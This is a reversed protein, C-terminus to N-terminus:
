AMSIYQTAEKLSSIQRYPPHFERSFLLLTGVGAKEGAQMDRLKDGIMLSRQMDIGHNKQARLLMGANPKRDDCEKKYAGSGEPHHPCHYIADLPAGEKEFRAKMWEMLAEFDQATYYGRGIGSQNTVVILLYNAARAVRCVDFIGEMFIIDHPRHIYGKDVHIVGDRDLFLAKRLSNTM